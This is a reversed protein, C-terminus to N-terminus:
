LGAREMAEVRNAAITFLREMCCAHFIQQLRPSVGCLVLTGRGTKIQQRVNVLLGLMASGLYKTGSLDLVWSEGARGELAQLLDSNIQDLQSSDLTFPLALEIVQVSGETRYRFMEDAM